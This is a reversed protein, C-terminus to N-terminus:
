SGDVTTEPTPPPVAVLISRRSHHVISAAVSGLLADRLPGHSRHGVVVLDAGAEDAAALLEHGVHGTRVEVKWPGPYAALRTTADAEIIAELESEAQAYEISAAPGLGFGFPRPRVHVITISAGRPGGITAALELAHLSEASDDVGVVIRDLTAPTTDPM